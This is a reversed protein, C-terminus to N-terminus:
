LCRPAKGPVTWPHWMSGTFAKPTHTPPFPRASRLTIRGRAWSPCPKIKSTVERPSSPSLSHMPAFVLRRSRSFLLVSLAQGSVPCSAPSRSSLQCTATGTRCGRSKGFGNGYEGAPRWVLVPARAHWPGMLLSCCTQTFLSARNPAVGVYGAWDVVGCILSRLLEMCHNSGPSGARGLGAFCFIFRERGLQESRTHAPAVGQFFENCGGKGVVGLCRGGGGAAAKATCGWEGLLRPRSSRLLLQAAALSSNPAMPSLLLGAARQNAARQGRALRNPPRNVCPSHCSNIVTAPWVDM